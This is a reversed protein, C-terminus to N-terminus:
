ELECVGWVWNMALMPWCSFTMSLEFMHSESLFFLHIVLSARNLSGISVFVLFIEQGM